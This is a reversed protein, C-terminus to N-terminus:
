QPKISNYNKHQWREVPNIWKDGYVLQLYGEVNSPVRLDLNFRSITCNGDFYSLPFCHMKEFPGPVFASEQYKSLAV